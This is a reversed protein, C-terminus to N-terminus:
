SDSKLVATCFSTRAGPLSAANVYCSSYRFWLSLLKSLYHQPSNLIVFQLPTCVHIRESSMLRDEKGAKRRLATVWLLAKLFKSCYFFSKNERSSYPNRWFLDSLATSVESLVTNAPIDTSTDSLIQNREMGRTQLLCLAPGGCHQHATRCTSSIRLEAQVTLNTSSHTLATVAARAAM